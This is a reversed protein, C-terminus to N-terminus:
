PTKINVLLAQADERNRSFVGCDVTQFSGPTANKLADRIIQLHDKVIRWEVASIAVIALRRSALDHEFYPLSQEGTLLVDFGDNEAAELLKGNKLGNWGFNIAPPSSRISM